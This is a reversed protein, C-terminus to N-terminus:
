FALSPQASGHFEDAPSCEVIHLQDSYFFVYECYGDGTEFCISDYGQEVLDQRYAAFEAENFDLQMRDIESMGSPSAPVTKMAEYTADVVYVKGWRGKAYALVHSDSETLFHGLLNAGTDFRPTVGKTAFESFRKTTGHFLRMTEM